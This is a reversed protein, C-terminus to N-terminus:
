LLPETDNWDVVAGKWKTRICSDLPPVLSDFDDDEADGGFMADKKSSEKEVYGANATVTLRIEEDQRALGDFYFLEVDEDKSPSPRSTTPACFLVSYHSESCVVWVPHVPSKLNEGVEVYGYREFLTLFGVDCRRPIGWLTTSEARTSGELTRTGDFVQSYAGGTLLLNVLEQSAYDHRGMLRGTMGPVTAMDRSIRDIGRTLIASYVLLVVGRGHKETFQDLVGNKQLFSELASRSSLTFLRLNEAVRDCEVGADDRDVLAVIAAGRESEVAIRWLVTCIAEVLCKRRTTDDPNRWSGRGEKTSSLCALVHAQVVAIPGCPGGEFQILGYRLDTRDADFHFGQKMWADPFRATTKSEEGFITKRLRLADRASIPVGDSASGRERQTKGINVDDIDDDFDEVDDIKMLEGDDNSGNKMTLATSSSPTTLSLEKKKARRTM